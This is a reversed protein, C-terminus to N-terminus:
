MTIIVSHFCRHIVSYGFYGFSLLATWYDWVKKEKQKKEYNYLTLGTIIVKHQPGTWHAKDAVAAAPENHVAENFFM